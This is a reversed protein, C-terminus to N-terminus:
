MVCCDASLLYNLAIVGGLCRYWPSHYFKSTVCWVLTPLPIESYKDHGFHSFTLYGPYKKFRSVPPTHNAQQQEPEKKNTKKTTPNTAKSHSAFCFLFNWIETKRQLFFSCSSYLSAIASSIHSFCLSSLICTSCLAKPEWASSGASWMVSQHFSFSLVFHTILRLFPPEMIRCRNVLLVLCLVSLDEESEARLKSQFSIYKTQSGSLFPAM